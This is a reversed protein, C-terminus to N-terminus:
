FTISDLHMQALQTQLSAAPLLEEGRQHAAIAKEFYGMQGDRPVYAVPRKNLNNGTDGFAARLAEAAGEGMEQSVTDYFSTNTFERSEANIVVPVEKGDVQESQKKAADIIKHREQIAKLTDKPSPSVLTAIYELYGMQMDHKANQRDVNHQVLIRWQDENM